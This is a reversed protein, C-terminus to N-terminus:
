KKQKDSTLKFMIPLTYYVSVPKGGQKGPQWNPFMSVVRKAEEDCGGGIGRLVSVDGISGDEHVVFRVVVRGEINNKRAAEPYHLNNGIFQGYDYGATPMKEVYQFTPKNKATDQAYVASACFILVPLVLNKIRM